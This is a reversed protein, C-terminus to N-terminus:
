KKKGKSKVTTKAKPAYGFHSQTKSVSAKKKTM